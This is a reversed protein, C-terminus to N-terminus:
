DYSPYFTPNVVSVGKNNIKTDVIWFGKHASIGKNRMFKSQGCLTGTQFIHINRYFIYEAKHFHGIFLMTPKSGGELSEAIKQSKYSIAYATGGDPHILEIKNNGKLNINGKQDGMYHANELKDELHKGIDIGAHKYFTNVTHNGTIFYLPMEIQKLQEVAYNLQEDLGLHTLEFIHGARNTYWGECVDGTCLALDCNQKKAEKSMSKMLNYDYKEHGIHTDGFVLMKVNNGTFRYDKKLPSPNDTQKLLKNIQEEGYKEVLLELQNLEKKKM